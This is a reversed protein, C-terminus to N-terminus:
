LGPDADSYCMGSGDTYLDAYWDPMSRDFHESHDIKKKTPSIFIRYAREIRTAVQKPSLPSYKLNNLDEYMEDPVREALKMLWRDETESGEFDDNDEYAEKWFEDSYNEYVEEVFPTWNDEPESTLYRDLGKITTM